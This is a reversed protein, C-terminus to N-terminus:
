CMPHYIYDFICRTLCKRRYVVKSYMTDFNALFRNNKLPLCFNSLFVYVLPCSFHLVIAGYSYANTVDANHSYQQYQCVYFM